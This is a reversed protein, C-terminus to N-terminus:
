DIKEFCYNLRKSTIECLKIEHDLSYVGYLYKDLQKIRYNKYKQLVYNNHNNLLRVYKYVM